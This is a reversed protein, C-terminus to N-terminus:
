GETDTLVTTGSSLQESVALAGSGAALEDAGQTFRLQEEGSATSRVSVREDLGAFLRDRGVAVTNPELEVSWVEAGDEVSLARLEDTAGIGDGGLAYVHDDDVAMPRATDVGWQQSGDSARHKRLKGRPAYVYVGGNPGVRGDTDSLYFPVSGDSLDRAAISAGSKHFLKGAAIGFMFETEVTEEVSWLEEGNALDVATFRGQGVGAVVTDATSVLATPVDRTTAEWLQEGATVDAAVLGAETAAVYTGDTVVPTVRSSAPLERVVSGDATDLVQGDAVVANRTFVPENSTSLSYSSPEATTPGEADAARTRAANGGRQGWVVEGLQFGQETDSADTSEGGTTDTEM